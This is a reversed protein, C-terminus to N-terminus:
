AKGVPSPRNDTTMPSSRQVNPEQTLLTARLESAAQNVQKQRKASEELKKLLDINNAPM